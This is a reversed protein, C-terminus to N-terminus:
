KEFAGMMRLAIYGAGFGLAKFGVLVLFWDGMALDDNPVSFVGVLAVLILVAIIITKQSFINKM